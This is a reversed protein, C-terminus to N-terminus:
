NYLSYTIIGSNTAISKSHNIIIYTYRVPTDRELIVPMTLSSTITAGYGFQDTIPVYDVPDVPNSMLTASISCTMNLFRSCEVAFYSYNRTDILSATYGGVPGDSESVLAISCSYMGTSVLEGNLTGSIPTTHVYTTTWPSTGDSSSGSATTEYLYGELMRFGGHDIPHQLAM